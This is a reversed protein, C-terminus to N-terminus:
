RCAQILCVAYASIGEQRGTLGLRETTTAKISINGVHTNMVESLCQQMAPIHPNLKPREACVTADVNVVEWGHEDLLDVVRSLIVKSDMNLTDDSTDPFHYGIDRLNAAGLLADAIAHILVDADSHGLLGLSHEIRIGGLILDRGEVLRHVDFGMGVRLGVGSGEGLSPPTSSGVGHREVLSSPPISNGVGSGEGLSPPISRSEKNNLIQSIDSVVRDTDALVEENTFRIVQFGKKALERTRFDDRKQQDIDEHYGGDIEIVLQKRLCVFDAIYNDIPHQRRFHEGLKDGSLYKWMLAEAETPNERQRRANDLLLKYDLSDSTEYKRKVM